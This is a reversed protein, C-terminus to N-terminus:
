WLGVGCVGSDLKKTLATATIMLNELAETDQIVDAVAANDTHAKLLKKGLQLPKM